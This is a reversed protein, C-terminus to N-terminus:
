CVEGSLRRECCHKVPGRACFENAGERRKEPLIRWNRGVRLSHILMLPFHELQAEVLPAYPPREPSRGIIFTYNEIYMVLLAGGPHRHSISWAEASIALSFRIM